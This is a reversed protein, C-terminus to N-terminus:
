AATAMRSRRGRQEAHRAHRQGEAADLLLGALEPARRARARARAKPMVASSESAREEDSAPGSRSIMSEARRKAAPSRPARARTRRPSSSPSSARMRLWEASWSWPRRVSIARSRPRVSAMREATSSPSSATSWRPTTRRALGLARGCGPGSPGPPGGSGPPPGGSRPPRPAPPPGASRGAGPRQLHRQAVQPAAVRERPRGEGAHLPRRRPRHEREVVDRLRRRTSWIRRSKTALAEWSSRVGRVEIRPKTSARSSPARESARGRWGSGPCSGCGRRGCPPAPPRGARATAAPPRRAAAAIPPRSGQRRAPRRPPTGRCLQGAALLHRDGPTHSSPAGTTIVSASRRRRIRSFRRSFASLYVGAPPPDLHACPPAGISVGDNSTSSSPGPM